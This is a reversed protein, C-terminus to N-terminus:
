INALSNEEDETLYFFGEGARLAETPTTTEGQPLLQAVAPLKFSGDLLGQIFMQAREFAGQVDPSIQNRRLELYYMALDAVARKISQDAELEAVSYMKSLQTKVYGEAQAIIADVISEDYVPEQQAESYDSALDTVREADFTKKLEAVTLIAM